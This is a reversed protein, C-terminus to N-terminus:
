AEGTTSTVTTTSPTMRKTTMSMVKVLKVYVVTLDPGFLNYQRVVAYGHKAAVAQIEKEMLELSM